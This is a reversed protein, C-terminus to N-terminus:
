RPASGSARVYHDRCAALWAALEPAAVGYTDPLGAEFGVLDLSARRAGTRPGQDNLNYGVFDTGGQRYVGFTALTEWRAVHPRFLTCFEMGKASVRLYSSGPVLQLLSILVGLGFFSIMAWHLLPEPVWWAGIVFVSSGLAVRVWKLRRPYLTTEFTTPAPM